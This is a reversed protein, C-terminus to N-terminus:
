TAFVIAELLGTNAVAENETVIWPQANEVTDAFLELIARECDSDDLEMATTEGNLKRIRFLREDRIEAWGDTGYIQIRWDNPTATLTSLSGTQGSAFKMSVLTTDDMGYALVQRQSVTSVASVPGLLSIMLDTIHIGKGTMGGAPSEDASARWDDPSQRFASPGSFNGEAHLIQGLEGEEVMQRLLNYAPLCRRNHGLALVIQAGKAVEYAKRASAADLALPKEVFVHKGAKAARIIQDLHQSHPTALVVADIQPDALLADYDNDIELKMETAFDMAKSPTRTAGRIFRIKDSKGAVSRVLTQGWRGVGVLGANIM